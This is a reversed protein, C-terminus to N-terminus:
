GQHNLRQPTASTTLTATFAPTGIGPPPPARFESGSTMFFTWMSGFHPGLPPAPPQSRSSWKGDGTPVTGTWAVGSRDAKALAVVDAGVTRGIDVGATFDPRYTSAGLAATETALRANIAQEDKPYLFVLVAAAAGAAAGEPKVGKARATVIANNMALNLYTLTRLAGFQGVANRAILDCAYENWRVTSTPAAWPSAVASAPRTPSQTCGALLAVAILWALGRLAAIRAITNM